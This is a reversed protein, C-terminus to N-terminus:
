CVNINRRVQMMRLGGWRVPTDNEREQYTVERTLTGFDVLEKQYQHAFDRLGKAVQVFISDHFLLYAGDAVYPMVGIADRMVGKYTHDGDILVMDFKGGAAKVAEPLIDPSYGTLLTTRHEIRQWHEPAIKPEPDVCVIRGNSEALNMATNVLLASGGKFTGIELYRSPRLTFTLTFLLLREARTMWVPAWQIVDLASLNIDSAFSTVDYVPLDIDIPLNEGSIKRSQLVKSVLEAVRNMISM